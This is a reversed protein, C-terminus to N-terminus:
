SARTFTANLDAPDNEGDETFDFLEVESAQVTLTNGDESLTFTGEIPDDEPEDDDTLTFSSGSITFDGTNTSTPMGPINLVLTYRESSTITLVATGGIDTLSVPNGMFTLSMSSANWIGALDAVTVGTPEDDDDCAVTLAGVMLVPLALRLWKARILKM